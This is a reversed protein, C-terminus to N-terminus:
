ESLTRESDLLSRLYEEVNDFNAKIGDYKTMHDRGAHDRFVLRWTLKTGGETEQLDMSEVAEADPWGDFLWTEVTRTPPARGGLVNGPVFV